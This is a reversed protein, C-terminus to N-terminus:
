GNQLEPLRCAFDCRGAASCLGRCRKRMWPGRTRSASSARVAMTTWSGALRAADSTGCRDMSSAGADKVRRQWGLAVPDAGGAYQVVLGPESRAGGNRSQGQETSPRRTGLELEVLAYHGRGTGISDGSGFWVGIEEAAVTELPFGPYGSARRQGDVYLDATETDPDYTLEYSHYTGAGGAITEISEPKGDNSLGCWVDQGDSGCLLYWMKQGDNVHVTTTYSVSRSKDAVELRCRLTWGRRRAAQMTDPDIHYLYKAAQGRGKGQDEVYWAVQRGAPDLVPGWTQGRQDRSFMRWGERLPNTVGSFRAVINPSGSEGAVRAGRRRSARDRPVAQVQIRLQSLRGRYVKFEHGKLDRGDIQIKLQRAEGDPTEILIQSRTLDIRQQGVYVSLRHPGVRLRRIGDAPVSEDDILLRLQPLSDADIQLTPDSAWSLVKPSLSAVLLLLALMLWPWRWSRDPRHNEPVSTLRGARSQLYQELAGDLEAMTAYREAASKALMRLCIADVDPDVSPRRASPPEPAKQPVDRALQALSGDFPLTDTLLQYLIVGLSYIDTAPGLQDRHGELQEPSMYCYTGLLEGTATLEQQSVEHLSRALGFDLVRPEGYVDIIINSPKLDRHIVGRRHAYDLARAVKQVLVLSRGIDAFDGRRLCAALSSGEIYAMSIFVIGGRESIDHVHCIHPHELQAALQAERVIRQQHQPLRATKLAVQRQLRKDYALYVTGMGGKGIEGLLRYRDFEEPLRQALLSSLAAGLSEGDAVWSPPESDPETGQAAILALLPEYQGPFRRQFQDLECADGAFQRAEYEALLLRASLDRHNGLAPFHPLYDELRREQGHQWARELDVKVMEELLAARFLESDDPGSWDREFLATPTWSRDFELLIAELRCREADALHELNEAAAPM